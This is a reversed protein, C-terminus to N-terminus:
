RIKKTEGNEIMYGRIERITNRIYATDGLEAAERISIRHQNGALCPILTGNSSLRLPFIGERCSNKSPCTKCFSYPQHAALEDIRLLVDAGSNLKILRKEIGEVDVLKEEYQIGFSQLKGYLVELTIKPDELNKNTSILPLIVLTLSRDGAFTLLDILDLDSEPSLYVFNIKINKFGADLACDIGYLTKKLMNRPVGYIVEYKQPNLTNLTINLRQLGAKKLKFAKEALYTGNTIMSLDSIGCSVLEKVLNYVDPRITPEGGTIKFKKFGEELAIRSILGFQQLTMEDHSIKQGEKHCFWCSLNCKETISIRFYQSKNAM